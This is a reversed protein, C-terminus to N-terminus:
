VLGNPFAGKGVFDNIVERLLNSTLNPFNYSFGTTEIFSGTIFTECKYLLEEDLYPTLPTDLIGKSKCLDSWPKLHKKM